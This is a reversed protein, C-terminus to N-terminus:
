IVLIEYHRTDWQGLWTALIKEMWQKKAAFGCFLLPITLFRCFTTKSYHILLDLIHGETNRDKQTETQREKM